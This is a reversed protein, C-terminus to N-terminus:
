AFRGVQVNQLALNERPSGGHAKFKPTLNTIQKFIGLVATVATDILVSHHYSGIQSAFEAARAKTESSSNETAMYCTVLLTNCLQKPDTPVYEPDGVIKQVDSLAQADTTKKSFKILLCM